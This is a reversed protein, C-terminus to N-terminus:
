LLYGSWMDDLIKTVQWGTVGGFLIFQNPASLSRQIVMSGLRGTPVVNLSKVVHWQELIMDFYWVDNMGQSSLAEGGFIFFASSSTSTQFISQGSRAPPWVQQKNIQTWEKTILSFKWMDDTNVSGNGSKVYGGFVYISSHSMASYLIPAYMRPSIVPSNGVPKIETFQYNILSFVYVQNYFNDNVDSGGFMLIYSNDVCTTFHGFKSAIKVQEENSDNNVVIWERLSLDFKWIQGNVSTKGSKGGIVYFHKGCMVASADKLAPPWAKGEKREIQTWTSEQHDFMWLDSLTVFKNGTGGYLMTLSRDPTSAFAFDFRASPGSALSTSNFELKWGMYDQQQQQSSSYSTLVPEVM